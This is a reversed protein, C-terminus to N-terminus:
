EELFQADIRSKTTKNLRGQQRYNRLGFDHRHCAPTFNWRFLKDPSKTCGDSSWNLTAPDRSNRNAEFSEISLRFLYDDTTETINQPDPDSNNVTHHLLEGIEVQPGMPGQDERPDILQISTQSPLVHSVTTSRRVLSPTDIATPLAMAVSSTSLVFASLKM